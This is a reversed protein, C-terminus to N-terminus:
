DPIRRRADARRALRDSRAGVPSSRASRSASRRRRRSYRSRARAATRRFCIRRADVDVGARQRSRRDRRRRAHAGADPIRDRLEAAADDRELVHAGDLHHPRAAQSRRVARDPDARLAYFIGFAAGAFLGLQSDSLQLDKGIPVLLLNIVTRDIINFTGVGLLVALAYHTYRSGFEFTRPADVVPDSAAPALLDASQSM